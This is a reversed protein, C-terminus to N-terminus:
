NIGYSKPDDSYGFAKIDSLFSERVLAFTEPTYAEPWPLHYSQNFQDLIIDELALHNLVSAFDAALTEYRLIRDVMLNGYGDMVYKTQPGPALLRGHQSMHRKVYNGFDVYDAVQSYHPASETQANYTYWSLEMDWPNRVIAFKFLSNFKEEGIVDRARQASAHIPLNLVAYNFGKAEIWIKKQATDKKDKATRLLDLHAFAGAVSTGAAKPVHIFLFAPDDCIVM